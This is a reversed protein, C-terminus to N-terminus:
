DNGLELPQVKVDKKGLWISNVVRAMAINRYDRYAIYFCVLSSVLLVAGLLLNNFQIVSAACFIMLLAGLTSLSVTILTFAGM